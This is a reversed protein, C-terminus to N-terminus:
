VTCEAQDGEGFNHVREHEETDSCMVSAMQSVSPKERQCNRDFFKEMFTLDYSAQKSLRVRERIGTGNEIVNASSCIFM